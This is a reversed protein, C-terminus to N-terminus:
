MRQFFLESPLVGVQAEAAVCGLFFGLKELATLAPHSPVTTPYTLFRVPLEVLTEALVSTSFVHCFSSHLPRPQAIDGNSKRRTYTQVLHYTSESLFYLYPYRRNAVSRPMWVQSKPAAGTCM